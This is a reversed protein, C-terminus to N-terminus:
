NGNEPKVAFIESFVSPEAGDRQEANKANKATIGV